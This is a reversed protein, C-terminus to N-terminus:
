WVFFQMLKYWGVHGFFAVATGLALFPAFPIQSKMTARWRGAQSAGSHILSAAFALRPLALSFLGAIAGSWVAVLLAAAGRDFGLLFGLGLAVYSDGLGMARGRSLYWPLAFLAAYLPGALFEKPAAGAAFLSLAAFGIFPWVFERPIITHRFDYVALALLFFFAIGAFVASAFAAMDEAVGAAVALEAIGVMLMGGMLEVFFYQASIRVKCTRCRGRLWLFSAIPVLDHWSLTRACSFCRSRGVLTMGTEFRFLVVNLFSGISTGFLFAFVIFIADM